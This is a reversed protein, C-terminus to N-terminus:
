CGESKKKIIVEIRRTEMCFKISINDPDNHEVAKLFKKLNTENMDFEYYIGCIRREKM